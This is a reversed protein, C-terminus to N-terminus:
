ITNEPPQARGAPRHCSLTLLGKVPDVAIQDFTPTPRCIRDLRDSDPRRLSAVWAPDATLHLTLRDDDLHYALTPTVHGPLAEVMAEDVLSRAADIVAPDLPTISRALTLLRSLERWTTPDADDLTILGALEGQDMQKRNSAAEAMARFIQDPLYPKAIYEEAGVRFGERRNEPALRATVMVVPVQDTERDAKLTRCVDHGSVDPLMLDLFIIDPPQRRAIALAEAGTYASEARYGKLQVLMGLLRNAEPEDEVILATPM